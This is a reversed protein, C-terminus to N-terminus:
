EREEMLDQGFTVKKTLGERVMQMRWGSIGWEEKRSKKKGKLM